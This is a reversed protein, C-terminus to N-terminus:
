TLLVWRTAVRQRRRSASFVRSALWPARERLAYLLHHRTDRARFHHRLPTITAAARYHDFYISTVIFHFWHCEGVVLLTLLRM